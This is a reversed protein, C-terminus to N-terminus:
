WKLEKSKIQWWKGCATSRSNDYEKLLRLDLNPSTNGVAWQSSKYSHAGIHKGLPRLMQDQIDRAFAFNILHGVKSNVSLLFIVSSIYKLIIAM